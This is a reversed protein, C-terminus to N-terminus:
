DCRTRFINVLNTGAGVVTPRTMGMGVGPSRERRRCYTSRTRRCWHEDLACGITQSGLSRAARSDGNPCCGTQFESEERSEVKLTLGHRVCYDEALDTQRRESNGTTQSLSSFRKDAKDLKWCGCGSQDTAETSGSLREDDLWRFTLAIQFRVNARLAQPPRRPM